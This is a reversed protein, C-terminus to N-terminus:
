RGVDQGEDNRDRNIFRFKRFFRPKSPNALACMAMTLGLVGFSMIIHQKFNYM